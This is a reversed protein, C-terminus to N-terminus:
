PRHTEWTASWVAAAALAATEIRLIPAALRVRVAGAGELLALEATTLGGEPGIVLTTPRPLGPAPPGGDRDLVILPGGVRALDPLSTPGAIVPVRGRRCQKVAEKAIRELRELNGPLREGRETALLTITGVGLETLGRVCDSLRDGKPPALAVNVAAVAPDPSAVPDDLVLDLHHRGVQAITAEAIWGAGNAIRVREGADLRLVTRAHHAEDGDLRLPGPHLPGPALLTRM